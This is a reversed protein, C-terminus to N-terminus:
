MACNMFHYSINVWGKKRSGDLSSAGQQANSGLMLAEEMSAGTMHSGWITMIEMGIM